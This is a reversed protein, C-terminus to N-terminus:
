ILTFRDKKRRARNQLAWRSLKMSLHRHFLSM